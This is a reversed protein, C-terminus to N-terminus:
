IFLHGVANIVACIVLGTVTPLLVSVATWKWSGTEKKITLCSTACPFHCLIFVMTCLATVWSWGNARFVEGMVTLDGADALTTEGMYIMLMIPLVIENAPFGMIFAIIIVGDLGFFRGIPDLLEACRSLINMDGIRIEAALWLILGAPAAATVARGLVFITRDFVSRILVKGIQPRRYPPLELAFSTAEGKLLTSSLIRSAAFTLVAGLLIMGTLMLAGTLGSGSGASFFITIMAILAPFRGNCPMFNNTIIAILRKRRSDIIRCGTIGAANCGLGM